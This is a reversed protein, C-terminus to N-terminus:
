EKCKSIAAVDFNIQAKILSFRPPTTLVSESGDVTWLKQGCVETLMQDRVISMSQKRMRVCSHALFPHLYAKEPRILLRTLRHILRHNQRGWDTANAERKTTKVSIPAV